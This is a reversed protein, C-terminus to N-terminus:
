LTAQYTALHLLELKRRAGRLHAIFFNSLGVEAFEDEDPNHLNSRRYVDRDSPYPRSLDDWTSSFRHQNHSSAGEVFSGGISTASTSSSRQAPMTTFARPLSRSQQFVGCGGIASM